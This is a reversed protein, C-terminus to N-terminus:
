SPALHAEEEGGYTAAGEQTAQLSENDTENRKNTLVDQFLDAYKEDLAAEILATPEGQTKIADLKYAPLRVGTLKVRQLYPPLPKRGSGIRKGGRPKM